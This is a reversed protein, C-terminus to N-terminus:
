EKNEDILIVTRYLRKIYDIFEHYPMQNKVFNCRSCCPVVNNAEYGVDSEKRDIGNGRSKKNYDSSHGGCYHCPLKTIEEFEDITLEFPIGRRKANNRYECYMSNGHKYQPNNERTLTHNRCKVCLTEGTKLFFSGVRKALSDYFIYREKGCLECRCLVKVKSTPMLDCVKVKIKTGKTYNVRGKKDTKRPITYGLKEYYSVNRPSLGVYVFEDLIM